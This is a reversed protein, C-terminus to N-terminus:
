FDESISNSLEEIFSNYEIRETKDITSNVYEKIPLSTDDLTKELITMFSEFLKEIVTESYITTNYVLRCLIKDDLEKFFFTIDVKSNSSPLKINSLVPNELPVHHEKNANQIMVVMIDFLPSRSLDRSYKIDELIADFPYSGHYQAELVAQKVEELFDDYIKNEDVFSRIPITNIFCGIQDKLDPHDRGAFPSGIIIDNQYSYRYLLVNVVGMLSMYLSTGSTETKHKLKDFIEKSIEGSFSNGDFTKIAPREDSISLNMKPIEGSFHQKWYEKHGTTTKSNQYWSVYDKYQINLQELRVETNKQYAEYYALVDKTLVEISWGDSIIHHMNFYFVYNTASVQLLAGRLLPGNELDFMKNLDNIVYARVHAEINEYKRYDLTKIEFEFAEPAVIYQRIDGNSEQKFVTRLIEHRRIVDDIAKKFHTADISLELCAPINYAISGKDYQSAVWMKKQTNSVPYSTDIPTKPIAVYTVKQANEILKCHAEITTHSFIKQMEIKVNCFKQYDSLLKSAKLSHGGLEFFDDTIGITEIGLIHQWIEVLQIELATSPAIYKKRVIDKETVEPLLKTAIKGNSTLPMEDLVVFYSPLMYDPLKTKLSARLQEKDVLSECVMYAVIEKTDNVEKIVVVAQPIEEYSLLAAEIEGLEIRYGRLKVQNDKRGMFEITGDPLWRGLDGTKYLIGSERFRDSVFKEATLEPHNLYGRSLGDGGLCIEGIVGIPQVELYDSLIYATSNSIPYGIPIDGVVEPIEYTISFTTNETPGYGNIITLEPYTEKLIAIHKPSLKDGGSLVTTLPAFLDLATDVLMQLWGATFWMINVNRNKIEQSLVESDLLTEKPCVVLCGGNLLTGWYEFTTADFSFAGTSLLIDQTSLQYFNASKVLRIINKHEVMVGKPTGTSGSTYMVYALHNPKTDVLPLTDSLETENNFDDLTDEDITLKCKCDEEMYAIRQEPYSTDIPVYACGAKLIALIAIIQWESNDLKIGVLDETTLDHYKLVYNALRSSANDLAAYTYTVDEFMLATADPTKAVQEVFLDIVTQDKPYAIETQNFDNLLQSKEETSIYSIKEIAYTPNTICKMMFAELHIGIKEVFVPDYIDTNYDIHVALQGEIETFVFSMDFKSISHKEHTYPTIDLGEVEISRGGLLNQQNQLVVVVDFLGSRSTDHRVDLKDVLSDLPYGQHAYADLLTHKELALLEEFTTGEEFQTRIALTNLYLGIQHELAQDSRGAIPTGVIIDRTNAYRSLLGNVGAMLTMFLSAGRRESFTRLGASVEKSFVYDLGAGNYTKLKPRAKFTPLELVPLEGEFQGLWYSESALLAEEQSESGLWEAYDKYQISLEPLTIRDGSVLSGYVLMFEKSLVEMSWGDSIIHHMNLVLIYERAALKILCAKILPAESLDFCHRNNKRLIGAIMRRQHKINSLNEEGVEFVVEDSPIIYQRVEETQADYMFRTRLSEHRDILIDFAEKILGVDVCGNLQFAAPINYAISGQEFQSLAWLRRQSSTLAYSEKEESRPISIVNSSRAVETIGTITPNLFVDKISVSLGLENKIKNVILTVKLSHGGLEFFNDTLGIRDMGLVEEWIAVIQKELTTKPAVYENRIVDAEAITPLSKKDVKGNATLPISAVAVYYTPVMYDPLITSLELRLAQKDLEQDSTYYAVLVQEGAVKTVVVVGQNIDSLSVLTNEIEGLEIRYGRIKVQDDKRAVFEINGDPLWRGLDGTKYMLESEGFRNEVFKERTLDPQHLYGRSLGDGSICIEGIVGCPQLEMAESVIYIETNAVPRGIPVTQGIQNPTYKYITSSITTETPGYKNYFDVQSGLRDALEKPCVEGACVIRRVDSCDELSEIQSIYGPTAHLHTIGKSRLVNSFTSVDMLVERNVLVLTGGGTLALFLQEISADFAINSFYLVRDSQDVGYYKSQYSIYNLLSDHGVMVGKPKGTSGSTYIVYAVESSMATFDSSYEEQADRFSTLVSEDITMKCDSHSRIYSIRDEPYKTDIPLYTCGAKLVALVSVVFWDSKELAISIIEGKSIDFSATIYNALQNSIADLEKYTIKTTDSELAIGDPTTSVQDLFLDIVTRDEPYGEQTQNFDVLLQQKEQKLLFDISDLSLTPTTIGISLFNEFHGM